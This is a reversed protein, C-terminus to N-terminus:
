RNFGDRRQRLPVNALPSETAPIEVSFTSGDGLSSQVAITGHMAQMLRQCLALGLGTGEVSSEEAGLRDFPVFLRKLKDAAIGRGTDKVLLRVMGEAGTSYSVTVTGGRPTYKIGNTLLNLLM